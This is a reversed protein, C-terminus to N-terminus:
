YTVDPCATVRGFIGTGAIGVEDNVGFADDFIGNFYSKQKEMQKAPFKQLKLKKNMLLVQKATKKRVPQLFTFLFVSNAVALNVPLFRLKM